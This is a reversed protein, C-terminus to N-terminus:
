FLYSWLTVLCSYVRLMGSDKPEQCMAFSPETLGPHPCWSEERGSPFQSCDLLWSIQSHGKRDWLIEPVSWQGPGCIQAVAALQKTVCCFTWLEDKVPNRRHSQYIHKRNWRDQCQGGQLIWLSDSLLVSWPTGLYWFSSMLCCGPRTISLSVVPGASRHAHQADEMGQPLPLRYQLLRQLCAPLPPFVSQGEMHRTGALSSWLCSHQWAFISLMPVQKLRFHFMSLVCGHGIFCFFSSQCCRDSVFLWLWKLHLFFVLKWSLATEEGWCVWRSCTAGGSFGGAAPLDQQTPTCPVISM